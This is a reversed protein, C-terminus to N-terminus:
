VWTPGNANANVNVNKNRINTQERGVSQARM